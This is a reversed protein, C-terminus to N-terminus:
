TSMSTDAERTGGELLQCPTRHEVWPTFALCQHHAIVYSLRPGQHWVTKAWKGMLLFTGFQIM